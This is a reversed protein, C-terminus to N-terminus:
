IIESGLCFYEVICSEQINKMARARRSQPVSQGCQRSAYLVSTGMVLRIGSTGGTCRFIFNFKEHYCFFFFKTEAIQASIHWFDRDFKICECEM